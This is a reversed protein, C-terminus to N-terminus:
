GEERRAMDPTAFDRRPLEPLTAWRSRRGVRRPQPRPAPKSTEDDTRRGRRAGCAWAPRQELGDRCRVAGPVREGSRERQRGRVAAEVAGPVDVEDVPDLGPGGRKEGIARGPPAGRGRHSSRGPRGCGPRPSGPRGRPRGRPRGPMARSPPAPSRRPCRARALRLHERAEGSRTGGGTVVVVPDELLLRLARDDIRRGASEITAGRSEEIPEVRAERRARAREHRAHPREGRRMVGADAHRQVPLGVPKSTSRTESFPASPVSEVSSSTRTASRPGDRARSGARARQRPVDWPRRFGPAEGRGDGHRRGARAVDEHVDRPRRGPRRQADLRRPLVETPHPPVDHLEVCLARAPRRAPSRAAARRGARRHRDLREVADIAHEDDPHVDAAGLVREIGAWPHHSGCPQSRVTSPSYATTTRGARGVHHGSDSEDGEEHAKTARVPGRATRRRVAADTSTRGRGGGRCRRRRGCRREVDAQVLLDDEREVTRAGPLAACSRARVALWASSLSSSSGSCGSDCTSSCGPLATTKTPLVGTTVSPSSSAAAAPPSTVSCTYAALM